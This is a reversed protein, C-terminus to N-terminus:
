HSLCFHHCLKEQAMSMGPSRAEGKRRPIVVNWNPIERVVDGGKARVQKERAVEATVVMQQPERGCSAWVQPALLSIVVAQDHLKILSGQHFDVVRAAVGCTLLSYPLVAHPLTLHQETPM